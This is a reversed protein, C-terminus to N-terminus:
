PPTVFRRLHPPVISRALTASGCSLALLGQRSQQEGVGAGENTLPDVNLAHQCLANSCRDDARTNTFNLCTTCSALCNLTVRKFSAECDLCELSAEVEKSRERCVVWDM